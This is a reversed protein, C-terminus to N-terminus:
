RPKGQEQEGHPTSCHSLPTGPLIYGSSTYSLHHLLPLAGPYAARNYSDFSVTSGAGKGGEQIGFFVASVDKESGKKISQKLCIRCM